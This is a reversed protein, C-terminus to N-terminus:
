PAVLSAAFAKAAPPKWRQQLSFQVSLAASEPSELVQQARTRANTLLIMSVFLLGSIIELIEHIPRASQRINPAATM